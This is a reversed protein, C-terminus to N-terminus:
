SKIAVEFLGETTFVIHIYIYIYIYINYWIMYMSYIVNDFCKRNDPSKSFLRKGFGTQHRKRSGEYFHNLFDM